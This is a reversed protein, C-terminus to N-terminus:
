GFGCATEEGHGLRRDMPFGFAMTPLSFRHSQQCAVLHAGLRM